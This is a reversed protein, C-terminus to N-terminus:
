PLEIRALAVLQERYGQKEESPVFAGCFYGARCFLLCQVEPRFIESDSICIRGFQDTEGLRKMGDNAVVRVSVKPIPGGEAVVIHFLIKGSGCPAAASTATKPVQVTESRISCAASSCLLAFATMLLKNNFTAAQNM